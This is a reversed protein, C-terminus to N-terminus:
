KLELIQAITELYMLGTREGYLIKGLYQSSMGAQEALEVQTMNREILRHKIQKGYPTLERKKSIIFGM